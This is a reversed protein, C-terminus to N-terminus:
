RSCSECMMMTRAEELFEYLFELGADECEDAFGILYYASKNLEAEDLKQIYEHFADSLMEKAYKSM